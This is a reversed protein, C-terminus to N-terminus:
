RFIIMSSRGDLTEDQNMVQDLPHFCVLITYNKPEFLQQLAWRTGMPRFEFKPRPPSSSILAIYYFYSLFPHEMEKQIIRVGALCQDPPVCANM